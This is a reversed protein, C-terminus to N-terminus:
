REGTPDLRRGLPVLRGQRGQQLPHLAHLRAPPPHRRQDAGPRTSSEARIAARERQERPQAVPRRGSDQRLNRLAEGNFNGEPASTGAALFAWTYCVEFNPEDQRTLCVAFLWAGKGRRFFIWARPLVLAVLKLVDPLLRLVSRCLKPVRSAPWVAGALTRNHVPLGPSHHFFSLGGSVPGRTPMDSLFISSTKTQCKYQKAPVTLM